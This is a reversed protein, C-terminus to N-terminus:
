KPAKLNALKAGEATLRWAGNHREIFNRRRMTNLHSPATRDLKEYSKHEAGLLERAGAVIESTRLTAGKSYARMLVVHIAHTRSDIRGKLADFAGDVNATTAVPATKQTKEASEVQALLRAATARKKDSKLKASTARKKDSKVAPASTVNEAGNSTNVNSM